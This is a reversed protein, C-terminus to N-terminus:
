KWFHGALVLLGNVGVCGGCIMAVYWFLKKVDKRLENIGDQWIADKSETFRKEAAAIELRLQAISAALETKTEARAQAIEAKREAKSAAIEAKAEICVSLRDAIKDSLVDFKSEIIELMHKLREESLKERSEFVEDHLSCTIRDGMRRDGAEWECHEGNAM